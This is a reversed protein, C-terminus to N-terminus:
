NQRKLWEGFFPNTFQYDDKESQFLIDQEVMRQVAKRVSSANFMSTNELFTKGYVNKGGNTAIERLVRMQISTLQSVIPTYSKIERAFVVGLAKDVDEFSVTADEKTAIWLADCLEQVDGSVRNSIDLIKLIVDEPVNRKGAKFRKSLFDIFKADTIRPVDFLIASKFFPSQSKTFIDSMKNRISGMFIYPIDSHFQIKGRLTAMVEDANDMHLLDQFEDFVVCMRTAKSRKEIMDMIDEVSSIGSSSRADLTISASGTTPDLSLSPRLRSLYEATKLLLSRRRDMAAVAATVKRCFDSISKTGMFDVYLMKFTKNDRFTEYILSTKGLRREGQLVINQGSEAYRLIESTLDPRPCYYEGGVICGYRFPNKM